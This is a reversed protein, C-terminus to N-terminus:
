RLAILRDDLLKIYGIYLGALYQGSSMLLRREEITPMTGHARDNREQRLYHFVALDTIIENERAWGVMDVLKWKHSPVGIPFPLVAKGNAALLYKKLVAEFEKSLLFMGIDVNEENFFSLAREINQRLVDTAITKVQTLSLADPSGKMRCLKIKSDPVSLREVFDLHAVYQYLTHKPCDYQKLLSAILEALGIQKGPAKELAIRVAEGVKQRLTPIKRSRKKGAQAIVGKFDQELVVYRKGSKGGKVTKIGPNFSLMGQAQKDTINAVAKLTDKVISLDLQNVKHSKLVDRVFEAVQQQDWIRERHSESWEASGWKTRDAKVFISKDQLYMIISKKSVPRRESVYAYIEDVTAPRNHTMLYEEMLNVISGTELHQWSKLGWHGSKGIPAFRGDASIQNSFTRLNGAQRQGSSVLRHNLERAIARFSMPQGSEFLLRAIQNGRGKLFEFRGWVHGDARREISSCLGILWNLQSLDLKSRKNMEKNMQVLVDIDSMPLVTTRTLLDDLRKLVGELVNREASSISGWVPLLNSNQFAVRDIGCILFLLSLSPKVADVDINLVHRVRDLLDTELIGRKPAAAVVDYVAKIVKLIESRVRYNKGAYHCEILAGRLESLAVKEIQRIRERTLGGFAQGM